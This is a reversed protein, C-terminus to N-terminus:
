GQDLDDRGKEIPSKLFVKVYNGYHFLKLCINAGMFKSVPHMLLNETISGYLLKMLKVEDPHKMKETKLCAM